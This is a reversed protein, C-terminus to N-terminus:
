ANAPEPGAAAQEVTAAVAHSVREDLMARPCGLQQGRAKTAAVSDRTHEIILKRISGAM